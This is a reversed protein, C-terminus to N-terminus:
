KALEEEIAPIMDEPEATPEFRRVVTGDKAILFKTFNWAIAGNEKYNKDVKAKAIKDMMFAKPGKGWTTFGQKSKLFTFIPQENEGNVDGKAMIPFTVGYNLRCFSEISDNGEPDQEAFQNCPFGVILLGKEKYTQYLKELGDFQPTFGCKSATNVIMIVEGKHDAFSFDAGRSTKVTFDYITTENMFIYKRNIIRYHPKYITRFTDSHHVAYRLRKLIPHRNESATRVFYSALQEASIVSDRVAALDVRVYPAHPNDFFLYAGLDKRRDRGDAKMADAVDTEMEMEHIEQRIYNLASASDEMMHEAGLYDQYFFKYRDRSTIGEGRPSCSALLVSLVAIIIHIKM